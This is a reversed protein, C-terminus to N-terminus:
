TQLGQKMTPGPKVVSHVPSVKHCAKSGTVDREESFVM